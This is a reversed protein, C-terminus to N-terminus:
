VQQTQSYFDNDGKIEIGLGAGLLEKVQEVGVLEACAVLAYLLACEIYKNENQDQIAALVAKGDKWEVEYVFKSEFQPSIVAIQNANPPQQASISAYFRANVTLVIGSNPRELVLYGGTILV